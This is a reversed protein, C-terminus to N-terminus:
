VGIDCRRKRAIRNKAARNSAKLGEAAGHMANAASLRELDDELTVLQTSLQSWERRTDTIKSIQEEISAALLAPADGEEGSSENSVSLM